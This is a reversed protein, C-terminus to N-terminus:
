MLHVLLIYTIRNLIHNLPSSQQGKADRSETTSWVLPLIGMHTRLSTRINRNDYFTRVYQIRGHSISRRSIPHLLHFHHFPYLYDLETGAVPVSPPATRDALWGCRVPSSSCAAEGRVCEWCLRPLPLARPLSESEGASNPCDTPHLRQLHHDLPLPFSKCHLNHLSTNCKGTKLM